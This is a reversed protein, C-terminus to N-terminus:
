TMASSRFYIQKRSLGSFRLSRSQGWSVLIVAHQAEIVEIGGGGEAGGCYTVAGHHRHGRQDSRLDAAAARDIGARPADHLADEAPVDRTEPSASRAASPFVASGLTNKSSSSDPFSATKEPLPLPWPAPIHWHPAFSIACLPYSKLAM